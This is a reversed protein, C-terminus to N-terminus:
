ADRIKNTKRRHYSDRAIKRHQAPHAACWKQWRSYENIVWQLKLARGKRKCRKVIANWAAPNRRRWARFQETRNKM